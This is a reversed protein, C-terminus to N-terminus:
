YADYHPLVTIREKQLGSPAIAIQFRCSPCLFPLLNGFLLEPIWMWQVSLCPLRSQCAKWPQMTDLSKGTSSPQLCLPSVILTGSQQWKSQEKLLIQDLPQNIGQRLNDPLSRESDCLNGKGMRGEQTPVLSTGLFLIHINFSQDLYFCLAFTVFHYGLVFSETKTARQRTWRLYTNM